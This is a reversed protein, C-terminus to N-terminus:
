PMWRWLMVLFVATIVYLLRREWTAMPMPLVVAAACGRESAGDASARARGYCAAATLYSLQIAAARDVRLLRTSGRDSLLWPLCGATYSRRHVGRPPQPICFFSLPNSAGQLAVAAPTRLHIGGAAAIGVAPPVRGAPSIFPSSVTRLPLMTGCRMRQHMDTDVDGGRGM